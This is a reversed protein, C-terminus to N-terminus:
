PIFRFLGAKQATYLVLTFALVVLVFRKLNAVLAVQADSAMEGKVGHQDLIAIVRPLNGDAVLLLEGGKTSLALMNKPAIVKYSKLSEFPLWQNLFPLGRNYLIGKEYFRVGRILGYYIAVPLVLASISLLESPYRLHFRLVDLFRFQGEAIFRVVSFTALYLDHYFFAVFALVVLRFPAIMATRYIFKGRM